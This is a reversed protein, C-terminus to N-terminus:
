EGLARVYSLISENESKEGLNCILKKVEDMLEIAAPFGFDVLRKVGYIVSELCSVVCNEDLQELFGMLCLIVPHEVVRAQDRVDGGSLISGLSRCVSLRARYPSDEKFVAAAVDCFGADLASRILRGGLGLLLNSLCCSRLSIENDRHLCLQFLLRWDQTTMEPIDTGDKKFITTLVRLAPVICDQFALIHWTRELIYLSNEIEDLTKTVLLLCWLILPFNDRFDPIILEPLLECLSILYAIPIEEGLCLMNYFFSLCACNLENDLLFSWNLATEFFIDCMKESLHLDSIMLHEFIVAIHRYASIEECDFFPSLHEILQIKDASAIVEPIWHSIYAIVSLIRILMDHTPGKALCALLFPLFESKFVDSVVLLDGSVDVKFLECHKLSAPGECNQIIIEVADMFSVLEERVPLLQARCPKSRCELFDTRAGKWRVVGEKELM